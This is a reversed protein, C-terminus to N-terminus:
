VGWDVRFDVKRCIFRLRFHSLIIHLHRISKALSLLFVHIKPECYSPTTRDSETHEEHSKTYEDPCNWVSSEKFTLCLLVSYREIVWNMWRQASVLKWIWPATEIRLLTILSRTIPSQSDPLQTDPLWTHLLSPAHPRNHHTLLGLWILSVPASSRSIGPPYVLAFLQM